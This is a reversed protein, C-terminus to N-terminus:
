PTRVLEALAYFSSRDFGAGVAEALFQDAAQTIKPTVGAALMGGVSYQTGDAFIDLRAQDTDYQRAKIM